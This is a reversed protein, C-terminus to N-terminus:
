VVTLTVDVNGRTANSYPCIQHAKNVINQAQAKDMGPMSIKMDVSIGFGVDLPGFSVSATISTDSPLAVKDQGAVFGMAGLFCASYGAAFLQEPNVGNGDGGMEAPKALTIDLKGDSTKSKGNRGGTTTAHATYVIKNLSPM